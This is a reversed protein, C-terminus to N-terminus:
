RSRVRGSLLYGHGVKRIHRVHCQGDAIKIPASGPVLAEESGLRNDIFIWARKMM